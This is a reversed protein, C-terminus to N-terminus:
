ASRAARGATVAVRHARMRQAEGPDSVATVTKAPATKGALSAAMQAVILRDQNTKIAVYCQALQLGYPAVMMKQIIDVDPKKQGASQEAFFYSVPQQLVDSIQQMRSAGIRNAGKEYKQVQQFTVGIRQGLESQSLKAITRAVRVRQGVFVDTPSPTRNAM